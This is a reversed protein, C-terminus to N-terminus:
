TLAHGSRVGGKIAKGYIFHDRRIPAITEEVL